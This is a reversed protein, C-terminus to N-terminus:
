VYAKTSIVSTSNSAHFSPRSSASVTEARQRRDVVVRFSQRLTRFKGKKDDIESLSDHLDPSQPLPSLMHNDNGTSRVNSLPNAPSAGPSQSPVSPSLAAPHPASSTKLLAPSSTPISPGSTSAKDTICVSCLCPISIQFNLRKYM